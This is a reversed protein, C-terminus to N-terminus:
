LATMANLRPRLMAWDSRLRLLKMRELTMNEMALGMPTPMPIPM